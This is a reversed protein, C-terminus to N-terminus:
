RDGTDRNAFWGSLSTTVQYPSEGGPEVSAIRDLADGIALCEAVITQWARAPTARNYPHVLVSRLGELDDWPVEPHADRFSRSVRAAAESAVILQRTSDQLSDVLEYTDGRLGVVHWVMRNLATRILHVYALDVDPQVEPVGHLPYGLASKEILCLSRGFLSGAEREMRVHDLLSHETDREFEVLVNGDTEGGRRANVPAFERIKWKRCFAEIQEQPVEVHV